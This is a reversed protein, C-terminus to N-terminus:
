IRAKKQAARRDNDAQSAAAGQVPAFYRRNTSKRSLSHILSLNNGDALNKAVVATQRRSHKANRDQKKLDLGKHDPDLHQTFANFTRPKDGDPCAAAGSTDNDM